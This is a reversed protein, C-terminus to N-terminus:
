KVAYFTNEGSPNTFRLALQPDINKDIQFVIATNVWQDSDLTIKSLEFLDNILTYADSYSTEEVFTKNKKQDVLVFQPSPNDGVQNFTSPMGKNTKNGKIAIELLILKKGEEPAFTDAKEIEKMSKAKLMATGVGNPDVTKYDIKIEQNLARTEKFEIKADSLKDVYPSVEDTVKESDDSFQVNSSNKNTIPNGCASLIFTVVVLTLIYSYKNM